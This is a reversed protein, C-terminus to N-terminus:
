EGQGNEVKKKKRKIIILLLIIGSAVLVATACIGVIAAVSVGKEIEEPEPKVVPSKEATVTKMNLTGNAVIENEPIVPEGEEDLETIMFSDIEVSKTTSVLSIYGGEYGEGLKGRVAEEYDDLWIAITDGVVRVKLTHAAGAGLKVYEEDVPFLERIMSVADEAKNGFQVNFVNGIATRRGEIESYVAVPNTEAKPNAFDIYQGPTQSGFLIMTREWQQSFEIQAEFNKYKKGTYTLIRVNETDYSNEGRYRDLCLKGSNVYWKPFSSKVAGGEKADKVFFSEFDM